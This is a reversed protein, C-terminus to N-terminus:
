DDSALWLEVGCKVAASFECQVRHEEISAVAHLSEIVAFSLQYFGLERGVWYGVVDLDRFPHLGAASSPSVLADVEFCLNAGGDERGNVPHDVPDVPVRAVVALTDFNSVSASVGMSEEVQV